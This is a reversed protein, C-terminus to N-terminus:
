GRETARTAAAPGKPRAALLSPDGRVARYLTARGVGLLKAALEVRFGTALLSRRYLFRLVDNLRPIEAMAEPDMPQRRVYREAKPVNEDRAVVLHGISLDDPLQVTRRVAQWRAKKSAAWRAHMAGRAQVDRTDGKSAAVFAALMAEQALDEQDHRNRSLKRAHHRSVRQLHALDDDSLM